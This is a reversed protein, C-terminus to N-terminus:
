RFSTNIVKFLEEKLEGDINDNEIDVVKAPIEEFRRSIYKKHNNLTSIFINVVEDWPIKKDHFHHWKTDNVIIINEFETTIYQATTRAFANLERKTINLVDNEIFNNEDLFKRLSRSFIKYIESSGKLVIM